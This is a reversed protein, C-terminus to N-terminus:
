LMTKQVWASQVTWGKSEIALILRGKPIIYKGHYSAMNRTTDEPPTYRFKASKDNTQLIRATKQNGSDATFIDRIWKEERDGCDATAALEVSDAHFQELSENKRQKRCIFNYGGRGGRFLFPYLKEGNCRSRGM